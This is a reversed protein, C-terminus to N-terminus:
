REMAVTEIHGRSDVVRQTEVRDASVFKIQDGIGLNHITISTGDKKSLLLSGDDSKAITFDSIRGNVNVTDLGSAHDYDPEKDNVNSLVINVNKKVAASSLDVNNIGGGLSIKLQNTLMEKKGTAPNRMTTTTSDVTGQVTITDNKRGIISGGNSSGITVDNWDVGDIKVVANGELRGVLVHEDHAAVDVLAGEGQKIKGQATSIGGGQMLGIQVHEEDSGVTSRHDDWTNMMDGTLVSSEAALTGIVAQNGGGFLNVTSGGEVRKAVFQDAGNGMVISSHEGVVGAEVVNNGSSMDITSKTIAGARLQDNGEAMAITSHYVEGTVAVQNNGYSGYIASDTVVGAQIKTGSFNIYGSRVTAGRIAHDVTLQNAGRGMNFEDNHAAGLDINQAHIVDDRGNGVVPLVDKFTEGETINTANTIRPKDAM